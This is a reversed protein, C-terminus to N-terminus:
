NRGIEVFTHIENLGSKLVHKVQMAKHGDVTVHFYEFKGPGLSPDVKVEGNPFSPLPAKAGEITIEPGAANGPVGIRVVYTKIGNLTEVSGPHAQWTSPYDFTLGSSRDTFTKNALTTPTSQKPGTSSSSSGCGATLLIAALPLFFTLRVYREKTPQIPGATPSQGRATGQGTGM